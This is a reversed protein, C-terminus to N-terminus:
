VPTYKKRVVTRKEHVVDDGGTQDACGHLQKPDRRQAHVGKAEAKCLRLSLPDVHFPNALVQQKSERKRTRQEVWVQLSNLSIKFTTYCRGYFCFTIIQLSM